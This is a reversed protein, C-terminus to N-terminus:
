SISLDHIGSLMAGWQQTPRKGLIASIRTLLPRASLIQYIRRGIVRASVLELYIPNDTDYLDMVDMHEEYVVDANLEFYAKIIHEIDYVDKTRAPNDAHAFLKLLVLGEIPVVKLGQVNNIEMAQAYPYLETFGPMDMVFLKPHEIRTEREENEIGGFPLLDIEIAQRFYLKIAETDHATFHGTDILAQKVRYFDQETGVNIAIDVDKTKRLPALGPNRSLHADRAVAGVLYFDIGSALFAQQAIQLM